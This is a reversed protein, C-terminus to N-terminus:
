KRSLSLQAWGLGAGVVAVAVVDGAKLDDWCQSLVSPAGASSVNGFYEVNHWHNEEPIGILECVTRLAGLNVQHGVFLLRGVGADALQTKLHRLLEATKRIAFGQVANGDQRFHTWRPVLVKEWLSPKSSMGTHDIVLSSPVTPSVVAASAADGFLVAASRDSFDVNLTVTEISLALVYAPLAEPKLSNLLHMQVGFASCGVNIDFCPVEIGLLCSVQAAQTPTVYEPLASSSVVMGIEKAAVGARELAMKAAAAGMQADSYLRVRDTARPDANKTDRIYDLPMVTRREVIGVRDMIWEETTGIDLEELFQNTIVNEPHFHGLGHLYIM